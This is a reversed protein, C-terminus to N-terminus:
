RGMLLMHWIHLVGCRLIYAYVTELLHMCTVALSNTTSNEIGLGEERLSMKEGNRPWGEPSAIHNPNHKAPM